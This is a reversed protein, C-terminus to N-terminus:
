PALQNGAPLELDETVKNLDDLYWGVFDRVASPAQM